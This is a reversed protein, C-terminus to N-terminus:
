PKRKQLDDILAIVLQASNAAAVDIFTDYHKRANEDAADSLSRIILCPTAHQWCVQAVAAGEMEVADAKYKERLEKVKKPSSVFMDGTAVTGHIITPMKMTKGVRVKTLTLKKIAEQAAQILVTDAPYFIPNTIDNIPNKMGWNELGTDTLTGFDYQVTQRAIVIDGLKLKPNIAGAIGTFIIETPKFHALLITVTMAANVKGVGTKTLVVRRNHLKGTVFTLGQIKQIKKETLKEQLFYVEKDVAGIVATLVSQAFAYSQVFCVLCLFFVFPLKM